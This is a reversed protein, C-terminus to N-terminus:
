LAMEATLEKGEPFVSKSKGYYDELLSTLDSEETDRVDIGFRYFMLGPGKDHLDERCCVSDTGKDILHLALNIGRHKEDEVFPNIETVKYSTQRSKRNYVLRTLHTSKGFYASINQGHEDTM